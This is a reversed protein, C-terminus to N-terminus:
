RPLTSMGELDILLLIEKLMGFRFVLIIRCCKALSKKKKIGLISMADFIFNEVLSKKLLHSGTWLKRRIQDCKSFFNKISFKMKRATRITRVVLDFCHLKLESLLCKGPFAQFM